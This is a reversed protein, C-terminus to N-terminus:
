RPDDSQRAAKVARLMAEPAQKLRGHSFDDLGRALEALMDTAKLRELEKRAHKAREPNGDPSILEGLLWSGTQKPDSEANERLEAVSPARAGAGTRPGCATLWVAALLPACYRVLPITLGGSM